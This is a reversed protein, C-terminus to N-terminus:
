SVYQLAYKQHVATLWCVLLLFDFIRRGGRDFQVHRARAITYFTLIGHFVILCGFIVLM